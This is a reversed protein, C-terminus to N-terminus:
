DKGNAIITNDSILLEGNNDVIDKSYIELPNEKYWKYDNVLDKIGKYDKGNLSYGKYATNLIHDNVKYVIPKTNDLRSIYIFRFKDVKYDPYNVDRFLM